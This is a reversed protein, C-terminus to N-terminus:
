ATPEPISIRFWADRADVAHTRVSRRADGIGRDTGGLARLVTRRHNWLTQPALLAAIAGLVRLAAGRAGDTNSPSETLTDLLRAVLSDLHESLAATLPSSPPPQPPADEPAPEPIERKAAALLAQAAREKTSGDEVTLMHALMPVLRAMHEELTAEPLAPLVAAIAVLCMHQVNADGAAERYQTVLAPVLEDFLRQKYLMRTVFGNRRHLMDDRAGLQALARAAAYGRPTDFLSRLRTLMATGQENLGRAVLARAIWVWMKLADSARVDSTSDAVAREWFSDLAANGQTFSDGPAYKNVAAYALLCASHAQLADHPAPSPEREIIWSLLADLLATGSELPPKVTAALPLAGAVLLAILSRVPAPAHADLPNLQGSILLAYLSAAFEDQEAAPLKNTLAAVAESASRLVRPASAVVSEGAGSQYAQTLLEIIRLPVVPAYDAVDEHGQRIKEEVCLQLTAFLGCAYGQAVDTVPASCVGELFAIVQTTLVPFLEPAVCIRSLAILALRMRPLDADDSDASPPTLAALLYPLTHREIADPHTLFVSSVGSLAHDRQSPPLSVDLLVTDVARIAIDVDMDSMLEDIQIATVLAHLAPTGHGDYLKQVLLDFVTERVLDLPRGDNAYSREQPERRYTRLMGNLLAALLELQATATEESGHTLICDAVRRITMAGTLSTASILAHVVRMSTRAIPKKFDTLEKLCEELVEQAIGQPSSASAYIVHLLVALTDQASEATEDDTPQLIEIRLYTWLDAANATAVGQGYVPLAARLTALTDLKATGGSASLKEILVPMALTAFAPTASICARLADKLKEPTIGYPDNPPPRFTIPFYCFVVDYFLAADAASIDWERLLTEEIGFLLLLNRPDKEGSVFTTFGQVFPHEKADEPRLALAKRHRSVLSEVLTYLAHRLPQAYNRPEVTAFLTRAATRADDGTFADKSVAETDRFGVSSLATLARVVEELMKSSELARKEAAQLQAQPASAPVPASTDRRAAADAVATADALKDCFFGTLVRVAQRSLQQHTHDDALGALHRVIGGLLAVAHTRQMDDDSTLPEGLARVLALLSTHGKAVDDRLSAPVDGTEAYARIIDDM